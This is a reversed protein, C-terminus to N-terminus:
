HARVISLIMGLGAGAVVLWTSSLRFRLLLIASGILLAATGLDVVAVRGLQWTVVAMLALSGVTVGDLISAVLRSQRLRPV